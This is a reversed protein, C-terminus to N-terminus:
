SRNDEETKALVEKFIKNLVSYDKNINIFEKSGDQAYFCAKKSPDVSYLMMLAGVISTGPTINFIVNYDKDKFPRLSRQLVEQCSDFNNYDCGETLVIKLKEEHENTELALNTVYGEKGFEKKVLMRIIFKLIMDLNEQRGDKLIFDNIVSKIEEKTTDKNDANILNKRQDTIIQVTHLIDDIRKKDNAEVGGKILINNKDLFRWLSALREWCLQDKKDLDVCLDNEVVLQSTRLILFTVNGDGKPTDGKYKLVRILPLINLYEYENDKPLAPSSIGSVFVIEKNGDENLQETPFFVIIAYFGVVSVGISALVESWCPYAHPLFLNLMADSIWTLHIVFFLLFIASIRKPAIANALLKKLVMTKIGLEFNGYIALGIVIILFAIAAGYFFCCEFHKGLIYFLEGGFVMSIALTSIINKKNM